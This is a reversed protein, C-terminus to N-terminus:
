EVDLHDRGHVAEEGAATWLRHRGGMPQETSSGLPLWPKTLRHRHQQGVRCRVADRSREAVQDARARKQQVRGDCDADDVNSSTNDADADDCDEATAVGDCDADSGPMSADNDNCDEEAPVGDADADTPTVDTTATDTDKDSEGCASLCLLSAILLSQIKFM